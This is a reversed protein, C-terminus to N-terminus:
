VSSERQRQPANLRDRLDKGTKFAPVRKSAVLVPGDTRPNINSLPLSEVQEWFGRLFGPRKVEIM